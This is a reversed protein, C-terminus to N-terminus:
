ALDRRGCVFFVGAFRCDCTLALIERATYGAAPIVEASRSAAQTFVAGRRLAAATANRM